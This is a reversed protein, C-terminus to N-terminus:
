NRGTTRSATLRDYGPTGTMTNLITGNDPGDTIRYTVSRVTVATVVAPGYDTVILDGPTLRM